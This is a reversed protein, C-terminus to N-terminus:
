RGPHPLHSTKCALNPRTRRKYFVHKVFPNPVCLPAVAHLHKPYALPQSKAAGYGGPPVYVLELREANRMDDVQSNARVAFFNALELVQPQWELVVLLMPRFPKVTLSKAEVPLGHSFRVGFDKAHAVVSYAATWGEGVKKQPYISKAGGSGLVCDEFGSWLGANDWRVLPRAFVKSRHVFEPLDDLAFV